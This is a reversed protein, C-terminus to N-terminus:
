IRSGGIGEIIIQYRKLHHRATNVRAGPRSLVMLGLGGDCVTRRASWGRSGPNLVHTHSLNPTPGAWNRLAACKAQGRLTM